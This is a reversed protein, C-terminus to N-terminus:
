MKRETGCIKLNVFVSVKDYCLIYYKAINQFNIILGWPNHGTESVM